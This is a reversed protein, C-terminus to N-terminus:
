LISTAAGKGTHCGSFQGWVGRLTGQLASDGGAPLMRLVLLAPPSNPRCSSPSNPRLAAPWPIRM